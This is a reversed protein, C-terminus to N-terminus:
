WGGCKAVGAAILGALVVLCWYPWLRSYPM